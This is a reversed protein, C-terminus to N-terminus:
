SEPSSFTKEISDIGAQRELLAKSVALDLKAVIFQVRSVALASEAQVLSLIDAKGIRYEGFAQSYNFEADELQRKAVVINRNATIVDEYTQRVDLLFVRKLENLDAKAAKINFGTSKRRFFKGLEFVNWTAFIGATATEDVGGLIENYHVRDYSVDVSFDPFFESNVLRRDNKAIEVDYQARLVEPRQTALESLKNWEPLEVGQILTGEIEYEADLEQGILSNLAAVAKRYEGEAQILNFRGQELRVSAQLVDSRKAVGSAFRGQAVEHDKTADDVQIQRQRLVEERAIVTNFAVKVDFALDLYTTKVSEKAGEWNYRAISRNAKRRGFDYLLYSLTVDYGRSNFDDVNEFDHVQSASANLAPLYAGLSADFLAKNSSQRLQNGQYLPLTKEAMSIAEEVTLCNAPAIAFAVLVVTLAGIMACRRYRPRIM